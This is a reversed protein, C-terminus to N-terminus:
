RRSAAPRAFAAAKTGRLHALLDAVHRLLEREVVVERDVLVEFEEGADVAHGLSSRASFIRQTIENEPDPPALLDASRCGAAPSSAARPTRRPWGARVAADQEEVLGGGADIRQRATGEPGHDVPQGVRAGRNQHGGVIQFFGLLAVPQAEHHGAFQDGFAAWRCDLARLAAMQELEDDVLRLARM